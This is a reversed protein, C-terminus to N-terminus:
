GIGAKETIQSWNQSLFASPLRRATNVLVRTEKRPLM